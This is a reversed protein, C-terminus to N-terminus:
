TDAGQGTVTLLLGECSPVSDVVVVTDVETVSTSQFQTIRCPYRTNFVSETYYFVSKKHHFM